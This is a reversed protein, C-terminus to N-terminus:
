NSYHAGGYRLIHLVTDTPSPVVHFTTTSRARRAKRQGPVDSAGALARETRDGESGGQRRGWKPLRRKAMTTDTVSMGHRRALHCFLALASLRRIERLTM